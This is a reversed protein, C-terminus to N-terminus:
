RHHQTIYRDIGLSSLLLKRGIRRTFALKSHNRYLYDPSVGIRRAADEVPLLEDHAPPTVPNSLLALLTVRVEELEGLLHPLEGVPLERAATLVTQLETRM